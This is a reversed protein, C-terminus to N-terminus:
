RLFLNNDNLKVINAHSVEFSDANLLVRDLIKEFDRYLSLLVYPLKSEKKRLFLRRIRQLTISAGYSRLADDMSLNIDSFTNDYGNFHFKFTGM